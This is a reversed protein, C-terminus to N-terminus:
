KLIKVVIEADVSFPILVSYTVFIPPKLNIYYGGAKLDQAPASWVLSLSPSSVTVKSTMAAGRM